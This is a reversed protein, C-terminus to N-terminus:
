TSLGSPPFLIDWAELESLQHVYGCNVTEIALDLLHVASPLTLVQREKASNLAEHVKIDSPLMHDYWARLKHGVTVLYLSAIVVFVEQMAPEEANPHKPDKLGQAVSFWAHGADQEQIGANIAAISLLTATLRLNSPEVVHNVDNDETEGDFFPNMISSELGEALTAGWARHLHTPSGDSWIPSQAVQMTDFDPMGSKVLALSRAILTVDKPRERTRSVAYQLLAAVCTWNAYNRILEIVKSAIAEPAAIVPDVDTSPPAPYFIDPFQIYMNHFRRENDDAYTEDFIYGQM